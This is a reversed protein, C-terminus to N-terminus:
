ISFTLFIKKVPFFKTKNDLVNICFNSCYSTNVQDVTRDGLMESVAVFTSESYDKKINQLLIMDEHRTWPKLNITEELEVSVNSDSKNILADISECTINMDSDSSCLNSRVSRAGSDNSQESRSSTEENIQSTEAIGTHILELKAERREARTERKSKLPSIPEASGAASSTGPNTSSVENAKLSKRQDATKPPSKAGRKSKLTSREGDENDKIPSTKAPCVKHNSEEPGPENKSSKRRRVAPLGPVFRETTKLSIRAINELQEEDDGPFTIKAPRLGESTQLYIKGNM